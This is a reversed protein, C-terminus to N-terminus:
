ESKVGQAPKGKASLILAHVRGSGTNVIRSIGTKFNAEAKDGKLQNAGQTIFVNGNLTATNPTVLYIAEDCTATDKDTTITVRGKATMTDSVTEGKANKKFQAIMTDARVQRGDRIQVVDGKAVARNEVEWFELSDRATVTDTATTFKLNNGKLIAKRTDIDYEATQGTATQTKGTVKVNGEAVMRWIESSGDPKKRDYAKLLDAEILTDGKKAKAHGNAIYVREAEHWELSKDATIDMTDDGSKGNFMGGTAAPAAQPAPLATPDPAPTFAVAPAENPAAVVPPLEAANLQAAFLLASLSATILRM